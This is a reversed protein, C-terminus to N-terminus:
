ANVQLWMIWDQAQAARSFMVVKPQVVDCTFQDMLIMM